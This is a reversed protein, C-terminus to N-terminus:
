MYMVSLEYWNMQHKTTTVHVEIGNKKDDLYQEAILRCEILYYNGEVHVWMCIRKDGGSWTAFLLSCAKGVETLSGKFGLLASKVGALFNGQFDSAICTCTYM